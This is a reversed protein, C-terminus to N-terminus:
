LVNKKVLEGNEVKYNTLDDIVEQKVGEFIYDYPQLIVINPGYYMDVFEGNGDVNVALKYIM